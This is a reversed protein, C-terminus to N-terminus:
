FNRRKVVESRREQSKEKRRRKSRRENKKRENKKKEKKKRKKREQWTLCSKLAAKTIKWGWCSSRWRRYVFGWISIQWVLKGFGNESKVLAFHGL